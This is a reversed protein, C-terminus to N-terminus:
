KCEAVVRTMSYAQLKFASYISTLHKRAEEDDMEQILIALEELILFANLETLATCRLRFLQMLLAFDVKREGLYTMVKVGLNEFDHENMQYVIGEHNPISQGFMVHKVVTEKQTPVILM